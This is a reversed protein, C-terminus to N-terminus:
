SLLISKMLQLRLLSKDRVESQDLIQNIQAGMQNALKYEKNAVLNDILYQQQEDKSFM